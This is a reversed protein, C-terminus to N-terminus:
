KQALVWQVMAKVDEEKLDPHAAMPVTGWNGSGGAKIKQVLLAEAGKKGKYKKAVDRYSPGVVKMKVQHCAFCDSKKMMAEVKPDPKADKAQGAVALPLLLALGLVTFKNMIAEQPGHNM